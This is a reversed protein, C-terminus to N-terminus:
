NEVSTITTQMSPSYDARPVVLPVTKARTRGNDDPVTEYTYTDVMVFQGSIIEEDYFPDFGGSTRVAIIMNSGVRNDAALAFHENLTQIIRYNSIYTGKGMAFQTSTPLTYSNSMVSCGCLIYAILSLIFLRAKMNM